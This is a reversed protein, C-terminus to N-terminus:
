KIHSRVWSPCDGFRRLFYDQVGQLAAKNRLRDQSTTQPSLYNRVQRFIDRAILPYLKFSESFPINREIWLLRNRWWFYQYHPAKDGGSFSASIKHWVKSSPVIISKYGSRRARYCFDGEEWMLFYKPELIGIQKVVDAKILLACGCIYDTERVDEWDKGNDIIGQGIHEFRLKDPLWQAGAYWIKESSGYYYIKSGFIGADPYKRSAEILASIVQPDVITDNNLLFIYDAGQTIAYEIGVNNGASFGLNAGNEILLLHPFKEKIVTTSDDTSGNDVVVVQYNDYEIGKLSNLCEITLDKGNWNLIIIFVKPDIDVTKIKIM